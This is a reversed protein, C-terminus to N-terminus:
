VLPTGKPLRVVVTGAIKDHWSQRDSDFAIWLFGLGIAAVSLVCGLARVVSTTWDLPRDDLRMVKLNCVIGGITTSRLKWLVAGYAAAILLLHFPNFHIGLRGLPLFNAVLVMVLICLLLDITLAGIRIWFGARPLAAATALEPPPAPPIATHIPLSGLVALPSPSGHVPGGSPTDMAVIGAAGGPTVPMVPLVPPPPVMAVMGTAAPPTVAKEKKMELILALIVVGLGLTGLLFHLFLGFVPVCYLLSIIVGGILVAVAVHAFPSDGFHRTFLRGFWAHMVARGFRGALFLGLALFPIVVLGIGTIVLLLFVLPTLVMTLLAALISMGPRQELTEACREMGRRFILALLVYLLLHAAAILWVWGLGEGFGLPRGLMACKTVWAGLNGLHPISGISMVRQVGGRVVADPHRELQGFVVVVQGDVVAKPGLVVNGFVAVAEGGVHGNIRLNGFVAVAEGGTRGNVTTNGFVSVAEGDIEGEVTTSGFISVMESSSMTGVPVTHNGLPMEHVNDQSFRIKGHTPKKGPKKDQEDTPTSVTADPENAKAAPEVAPKGMETTAKAPEAEPAKGAAAPAAADPTDLRRLDTKTEGSTPTAAPAPTPAPAPAAPQVAAPAAPSSQDTPAPAAEPPKVPASAPPPTPEQAFLALAFVLGLAVIAGRFPDRAPTNM